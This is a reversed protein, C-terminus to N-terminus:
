VIDRRRRRDSGPSSIRRPHPLFCRVRRYRDARRPAAAANRKASPAGNDRGEPRARVRNQDVRRSPASAREEAGGAALNRVIIIPPRSIGYACRIPRPRWDFRDCSLGGGRKAMDPLTMAALWLVSKVNNALDQRVSRGSRPSRGTRTPCRERRRHRHPGLAQRDCRRGPAFGGQAVNRSRWCRSGKRKSSPACQTARKPRAAASRLKRAPM